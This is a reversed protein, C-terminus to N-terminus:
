LCHRDYLEKLSIGMGIIGGILCSLSLLTPHLDCTVVLGCLFAFFCLICAPLYMLDAVTIIEDRDNVM